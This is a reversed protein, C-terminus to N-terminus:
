VQDWKKATLGTSKGAYDKQWGSEIQETFKKMRRNVLGTATAAESDVKESAEAWIREQKERKEREQREKEQTRFCCSKLCNSPRTGVSVIKAVLVEDNDTVAM